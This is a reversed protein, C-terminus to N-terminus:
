RRSKPKTTLPVLLRMLSRAARPNAMTHYHTLGNAVVIFYKGSTSYQKKAKKARSAV